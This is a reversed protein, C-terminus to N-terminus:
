RGTRGCIGVKQGRGVEFNIKKLATTGSKYTVSLGLVQVEGFPWDTAPENKPPLNENPTDREFDRTRALSALSNETSAWASTVVHLGVTFMMATTMGIGIRGPDSSTPVFLALAVLMVALTSSMTELAVSLWLQVSNFLYYAKQSEEISDTAELVLESQWAFARITSLGELTETFLRYLPAKAEIDLLRLQRSTRLYFRQLWYVAAGVFPVTITM